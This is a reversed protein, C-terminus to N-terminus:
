PAPTATCRVARHRCPSSTCRVARHRCPSLPHTPSPATCLSFCSASGEAVCRGENGPRMACKCLQRPITKMSGRCDWGQSYHFLPHMRHLHIEGQGGVRGKGSLDHGGEGGGGRGVRLDHGGEGREQRLGHVLVQRAAHGLALGRGADVEAAEWLLLRRQRTVLHPADVGRWAGGYRPATQKESCRPATKRESCGNMRIAGGDTQTGKQSCLGQLELCGEGCKEM